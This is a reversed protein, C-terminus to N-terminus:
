LSVAGYRGIARRTPNKPHTPSRAVLVFTKNGTDTVRLSLVRVLAGQYEERRGAPPPQRSRIFRDTLNTRSVAQERRPLAPAVGPCCFRGGQCTTGYRVM